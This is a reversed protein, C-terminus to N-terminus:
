VVQFKYLTTDDTVDDFVVEVPMDCGLEEPSKNVVNTVLRPGEDLEVVALVYPVESEFGQHYVRHYVGFSYIKGRGSAKKWEWDTSWCKPCTPGPPFRCADCQSCCPLLLEHRKCGDWFPQSEVSPVPLPKAYESM